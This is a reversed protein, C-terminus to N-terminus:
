DGCKELQVLCSYYVPGNGIDTVKDSVLANVNRGGAARGPWRVAPASVVGRGVMGDVAARALVSGRDNFLRVADGEAIGRAAADERNVHVIATEEDTSDRYGFTSNLSHHNKPSVLELPYSARLSTDGHRSEVPPEYPEAATRLDCKGGATGFGGRAFPLFPEDQPSVKLRISHERDLDARTIGDLFPHGSALAQDILDDDSDTFCRGTFGTRQALARFLDTNSRCEGPPAVAPRALQLYYHGYAFYVDSHELFTTAPLLIDAYAATDTPMQESVVTFLNERALGALVNNQDPAIAAPNSNYVVLAKVPGGDEPATLARGLRIMNIIRSERGLPSAKQLEPM